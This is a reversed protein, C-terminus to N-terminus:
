LHEPAVFLGPGVATVTREGIVIRGSTPRELGALCRLCTTKGCGSPGILVLMESAAVQLSLTKLAAVGGFTKSMNEIQVAAGRLAAGGTGKAANPTASSM